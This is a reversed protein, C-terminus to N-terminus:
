QIWRSYVGTLETQGIIHGKLAAMVETGSADKPLTLKNDLAYLTIVYNHATGKPPCPGSYGPKDFNNKGTLAGAPLPGGQPIDLTKGPINYVIWHYFNKDPADIDNMIIAYASTKAPPDTWTLGPSLDKGDCTYLTPMAMKDLFANSTIALKPAPEAPEAPAATEALAASSAFLLASILCHYFIKM